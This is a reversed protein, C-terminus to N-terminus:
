LHVDSTMQKLLLLTPVELCLHVNETRGMIEAISAGRVSPLNGGSRSGRVFDTEYRGLCEAEM